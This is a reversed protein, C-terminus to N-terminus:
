RLSKKSEMTKKGGLKVGGQKHQRIVSIDKIEPHVNIIDQKRTAVRRHEM